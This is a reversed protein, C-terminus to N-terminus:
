IWTKEKEKFAGSNLLINELLEKNYEISKDGFNIRNM